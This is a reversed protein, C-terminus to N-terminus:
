GQFGTSHNNDRSMFKNKTTKSGEVRQAWVVIDSDGCIELYANAMKQHIPFLPWLVVCSLALPQIFTNSPQCIELFGKSALNTVVRDNFSKAEITAGVWLFYIVLAGLMM